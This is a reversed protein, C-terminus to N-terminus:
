NFYGSFDIDTVEEDSKGIIGLDNNTKNGILINGNISPKNSLLNYNKNTSDGTNHVVFNELDSEISTDNLLMEVDLMVKNVFNDM